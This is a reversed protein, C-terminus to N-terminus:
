FAGLSLCDLRASVCHVVVEATQVATVENSAPSRMVAWVIAANELRALSMGHQPPKRAAVHSSVWLENGPPSQSKLAQGAIEGSVRQGSSRLTAKKLM